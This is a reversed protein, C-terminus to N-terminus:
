ERILGREKLSVHRHDGLVVHDLLPIDLLKGADVLKNTIEVDEPSPTPDGSPHNHAVVVGAAGEKVAERFVDRPCVISMALTGIHVTCVRRVQNKADLMVAVFHEKREDTLHDLLKAVDAPKNITNQPGKGAGGIRRGLELWALARLSEHRDMGLEELDVPSLDAVKRLNGSTRMLKLAAAETEATAGDLPAIGVALLDRASASKLGAHQVRELATDCDDKRL